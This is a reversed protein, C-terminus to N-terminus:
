SRSRSASDRVSTAWDIRRRARARERVLHRPHGVGQHGDERRAKRAARGARARRRRLRDRAGKARRRGRRAGERVGHLHGAYGANSIWIKTGNLVYHTGDASPVATSRMAQADSGSGPETLCFAAITEGRRASRCSASSRSRPQRVARHGQLRDVSACRLLRHAGPRDLWARRVRPQLGQRVRRLRRVGGPISLGMLGLEHMGHRVEDPFRADHDFKSSDVSSKAWDHMSDLIATLAEKEDNALVPFPFVLEERIEGLFVSKTFSPNVDPAALHPENKGATTPTETMCFAHGGACRSRWGGRGARADKARQSM